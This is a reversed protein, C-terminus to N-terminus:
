KDSYWLLPSSKARNTLKAHMVGAGDYDGDIVLARGVFLEITREAAQAASNDVMVIKGTRTKLSIMNGNIAVATGYIEHGSVRPM